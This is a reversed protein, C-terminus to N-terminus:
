VNLNTLWANYTNDSTSLIDLQLLNPVKRQVLFYFDVFRDYKFKLKSM